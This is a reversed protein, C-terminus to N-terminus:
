QECLNRGVHVHDAHWDELGVVDISREHPAASCCDIHVDVLRTILSPAPFFAESLPDTCREEDRICTDTPHKRSHFCCLAQDIFVVDRRDIGRRWWVGTCEDSTCHLTSRTQRPYSTKTIWPRLKKCCRVPPKKRCCNVTGQLSRHKCFSINDFTCPCADNIIRHPLIWLKISRLEHMHRVSKVRRVKWRHRILAVIAKRNGVSARHISAACRLRKKICQLIEGISSTQLRLIHM